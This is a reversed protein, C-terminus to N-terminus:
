CISREDHLILWEATQLSFLFESSDHFHIAMNLNLVTLAIGVGSALRNGGNQPKTNIERKFTFGCFRVIQVAAAYESKDRKERM